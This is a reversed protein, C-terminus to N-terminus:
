ALRTMPNSGVVQEKASFQEDLQAKRASFPSPGFLKRRDRDKGSPPVVFM